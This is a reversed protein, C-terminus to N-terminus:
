VLAKSFKDQLLLILSILDRQKPVTANHAPPLLANRVLGSLLTLEFNIRIIRTDRKPHYEDIHIFIYSPNCDAHSSPLSEWNVLAAEPFPVTEWVVVGPALKHAPFDRRRGGHLGPGPYNHSHM